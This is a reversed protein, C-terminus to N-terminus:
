RFNGSSVATICTKRKRSSTKKSFRRSPQQTATREKRFTKEPMSTSVLDMDQVHRTVESNAKNMDMSTVRWHSLGSEQLGHNPLYEIHELGQITVGTKVWCTKGDTFTLSHWEGDEYPISQM